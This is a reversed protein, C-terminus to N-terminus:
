PIDKDPGIIAAIAEIFGRSIREIKGESFEHPDCVVGGKGGGYPLGVVGCKFSMWMSMAKIEDMTVEPHFRIGGKTPGIADNHQSRFGEFVRISGDDMKVSFNVSLVRKPRQLIESVHQPLGLKNAALEVQRKAIEYSNLS